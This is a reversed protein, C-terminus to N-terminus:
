KRNEMPISLAKRFRRLHEWSLMALVLLVLNFMSELFPLIVACTVLYKNSNPLSLKESIMKFWESSGYMATIVLSFGLVLSFFKRLGSMKELPLNERAEQQLDLYPSAENYIAMIFYFPLVFTILITATLIPYQALFKQNCTYNEPDISMPNLDLRIDFLCFVIILVSILSSVLLSTWTARYYIYVDSKSRREPSLYPLFWASVRRDREPPLRFMKGVIASLTDGV